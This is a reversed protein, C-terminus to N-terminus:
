KKRWMVHIEYSDVPNSRAPIARPNYPDILGPIISVGMLHRNKVKLPFEGTMWHNYFEYDCVNMWARQVGLGDISTALNSCEYVSAQDINIIHPTFIINDMVHLLGGEDWPVVKIGSYISPDTPWRHALSEHYSQYEAIADKYGWESQGQLIHWYNNEKVHISRRPVISWENLTENVYEQYPDQGKLIGPLLTAGITTLATTQLFQRRKM